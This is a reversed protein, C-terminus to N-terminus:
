LFRRLFRILPSRYTYVYENVVDGGFSLKFRTIGEKTPNDLNISAMDLAKYGQNSGYVCIEYILRRTAFGIIKRDEATVAPRSFIHQIRMVPKTDYWTVVAVLDTHWYASMRLAQRLFSRPKLPLKKDKRFRKYCAYAESFRDDNCTVTFGNMAFTRRVENRTTDHFSQLIAQPNKQLDILTTKKQKKVVGAPVSFDHHSLAVIFLYRHKRLLDLFLADHLIVRASHFFLFRREIVPNPTM